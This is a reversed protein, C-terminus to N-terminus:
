ESVSAQMGDSISMLLLVMLTVGFALGAAFAEIIKPSIM